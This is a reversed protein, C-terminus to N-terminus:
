LCDKIAYRRGLEGHLPIEWVWDGVVVPLDNAEAVLPAFFENEAVMGSEVQDIPLPNEARGRADFAPSIPEAPAAVLDHQGLGKEDAAHGADKDVVDDAAHFLGFDDGAAGARGVGLPFVLIAVEEEEEQACFDDGVAVFDDIQHLAEVAIGQRGCGQQLKAPPM